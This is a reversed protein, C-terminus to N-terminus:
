RGSRGSAPTSSENVNPGPALVVTRFGIFSRASDANEKDRTAVQLFYSVDRWSGGRVVKIPNMLPAKDKPKLASNLIYSSEDYTTSTWEAVNGAMNYLNYGNPKYSRAEATYLAGDEAYDGRDPKFNALFCAKEDTTQPGGWPYVAKEIGGRAAYEWETETPLRYEYMATNARRSKLHTNKYLTRWATFAKAQNWTVGVVPYEGYAEHWFYEKHMPENYSYNFEKVWRTTDPYVNVTETKLYKARRDRASTSTDKINSDNDMWSYKFKLKTVDFTAIGLATQNAPIILSDMAETYYEDPYRQPNDILKVKKNLRRGAYEDQDMAMSYYNDYMYRDYASQNQNLSPDEVEQFAYQGIGGATADMGMEDAMIALRTRVVSDKVFEVFKRYQNNTIETEDMYFSGVTVTRVPADQAGLLDEHSRGMTFTGGPIFAMGQPKETIWRKGQVGNLLEGRDGSGCSFLLSVVATLTIFKKM